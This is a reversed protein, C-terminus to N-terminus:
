YGPARLRGARQDAIFGVEDSVQLCHVAYRRAHQRGQGVLGEGLEVLGFVAVGQPGGARMVRSAARGTREIGRSGAVAQAVVM